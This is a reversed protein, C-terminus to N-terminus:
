LMVKRTQLHMCQLHLLLFFECAEVKNSFLFEDHVNKTLRRKAVKRIKVEVHIHSNLFHRKQQPLRKSKLSEDRKKLNGSIFSFHTLFNWTNNKLKKEYYKLLFRTLSVHSM